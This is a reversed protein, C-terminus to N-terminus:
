RVPARVAPATTDGAALVLDQAGPSLAPARFNVQYIGPLGPALGAFQVECPQGALTLRVSTADSQGLGTAYLFAYEGAVLPRDPTVLSYDAVHVVVASSGDSTFVAPQRDFVPVTVAASARGDRTVVVQVTSRGALEIPAQINVQEQGNRNAVAHIPAAMGDVTVSVGGLSNPFPVSPAYLIGPSDLLGAAFITTLSGPSLGPVFSASNVVGGAALRPATNGEIRHITGNTANAVYIEGAEDQGFTTVSFGSALLQRNSWNAGQREIGWIRGSCLDGYLYVGRLGPSGAGRYVFGGTISCGGAAHTYEAVPLVLGAQNCGSTYCHQGEMRNWGYNEGGPSAASQFNVEEYNDQGVDAIWLDATDRDFSFRWPNRLGLAWIEPRAGSVNTFPNSAPTRVRGPDSEVDLRLIKGLLTNRNQGNGQPDGGSGGDGLGFYLFGDRGFSIQGGNHNSFPQTVKLLVVESARDALDPDAGVLYLALTTDGRLDTYHVYFRRSQAFGPPFALGLLGREGTGTTKSSIDLFPRSVVAGGRLIRIIGNQQVLFLRGSGDNAAQIDTPNSVGSAVQVTRIEQAQTAALAFAAILLARM